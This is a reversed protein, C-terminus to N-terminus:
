KRAIWGELEAIIEQRHEDWRPADRRISPPSASFRVPHKPTVYAGVHPHERREFFGVAQLHPDEKLDSLRNVRGYPISKESFLAAWEDTSRSGLLGAVTEYLFAYNKSRASISNIRPDDALQESGTALHFFDRWNQDSYPMVAIWGDRTRYPRRNPNTMRPYAWEGTPPDYSQDFLHEVLLFSTVAELMPVEVMQAEGTRERHFLAAMISYAMFLAATKDAILTPLYRPPEGSSVRPWLDSLGSQAQIIDDYAPAGAYPGDSGYGAAHAFILNPFEARLQAYSFGLKELSNMRVNTAFVDASALLARLLAKDDDDALDLAISRKNRNLTLFIPGLGPAAGEPPHGPWRMADGFNGSPDPAEIKIVDAGLDGLIATAYAGYVIQTLDVVRVGALPGAPASNEDKVTRKM